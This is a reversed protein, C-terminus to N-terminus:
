AAGLGSAAIWPSLWQRAWREIEARTALEFSSAPSLVLSHMVRIVMEALRRHEERPESDGSAAAIQRSAWEYGVALGPADATVFPMLAEQETALLRQLLRHGRLEVLASTAMQVLRDEVTGVGDVRQELSTLFRDLERGVAASFIAGKNSFYEYLTPRALGAEQAIDDMTTRRLGHQELRRLTADLIRDITAPNASGPM